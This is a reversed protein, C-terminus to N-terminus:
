AKTINLNYFLFRLVNALTLFTQNNGEGYLNQLPMFNGANEWQFPLVTACPHGQM